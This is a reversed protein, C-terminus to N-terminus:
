HTLRRQVRGGGTIKGQGRMNSTTTDGSFQNTCSMLSITDGRSQTGMNFSWAAKQYM